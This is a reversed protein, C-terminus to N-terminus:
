CLYDVTGLYNQDESLLEFVDKRACKTVVKFGGQGQDKGKFGV